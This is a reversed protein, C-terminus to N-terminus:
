LLTRVTENQQQRVAICLPTIGLDRTGANVAAGNAVLLEVIDTRSNEAAWHLATMGNNDFQNILSKDKNLLFIIAARDGVLAAKHLPSTVAEDYKVSTRVRLGFPYVAFLCLVILMAAIIIKKGFHRSARKM